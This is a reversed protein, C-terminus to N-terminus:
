WRIWFAPLSWVLIAPVWCFQALTAVAKTFRTPAYRMYRARNGLIELVEAANKATKEPFTECFNHIELEPCYGVSKKFKTMKVEKTKSLTNIRLLSRLIIINAVNLIGYKVYFTFHQLYFILTSYNIVDFSCRSNM